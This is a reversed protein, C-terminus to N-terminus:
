RRLAEVPEVFAAKLSPFITCVASVVLGYLFGTGLITVSFKIFITNSVSFTNGTFMSTDIPFFSGTLTLLGGAIMGLASGFFSLLVAEFFFVLVIEIRNMGLSGMMGIEKMREHIVMLITNIILFSAVVLFAIYLIVMMVNMQDMIVVWSQDKWRTIVIDDSGITNEIANKIEDTRSVDGIYVFLAQTRGTLNVIRQLRDFPVIVYNKDIDYYDFDFIGVIRPKIFKESMQSSIIKLTIKDDIGVGMKKALEYGIICENEDKQPLRGAVLCDDANKTKQNFFTLKTRNQFDLEQRMDIGWVVANKVLNDKVTAYTKIRPFVRSVGDIGSIKVEMEDLDRDIPYWTPNFVKKKEFDVSNITIHATEYGIVGTIISDVMGQMFGSLFIMAFVALSTAVMCLISRRKNRYINRYAIKVLFMLGGKKDNNKKM